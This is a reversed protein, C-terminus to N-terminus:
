FLDKHEIPVFFGEVPRFAFHQWPAARQMPGVGIRYQVSFAAANHGRWCWVEVALQHPPNFFAYM